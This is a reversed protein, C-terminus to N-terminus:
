GYNGLAQDKVMASFYQCHRPLYFVFYKSVALSLPVGTIGASFLRLCFFQSNSVRLHVPLGWTLFIFLFCTSLKLLALFYRPPYFAPKVPGLVSIWIGLIRTFAPYIHCSVQLRQHPSPMAPMTALMVQWILLHWIWHSAGGWYVLTSCSWLLCLTLRQGGCSCHTVNTCVCLCACM